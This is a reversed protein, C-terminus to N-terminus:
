RFDTSITQFDALIKLLNDLNDPNTAQILINIDDVFSIPGITIDPRHDRDPQRSFTPRALSPSYALKYLLPQIAFLFLYASIPDGQGSGRRSQPIDESDRGNIALTAVPAEM